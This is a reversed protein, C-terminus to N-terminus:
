IVQPPPAYSHRWQLIASSALPKFQSLEHSVTRWVKQPPMNTKRHHVGPDRWQRSGPALPGVCAIDHQNWKQLDDLRCMITESCGRFSEPRWLTRKIASFFRVFTACTICCSSAPLCACVDIVLRVYTGRVHPCSSELWASWNHRHCTYM